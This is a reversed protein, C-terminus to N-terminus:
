NLCSFLQDGDRNIKTTKHPTKSLATKARSWLFLVVIFLLSRNLRVQFMITTKVSVTDVIHMHYLLQFWVTTVRIKGFLQTLHTYVQISRWLLKKNYINLQPKTKFNYLIYNTCVTCVTLYTLTKYRHNYLVHKSQYSNISSFGHLNRTVTLWPHFFPDTRFWKCTCCDSAHM